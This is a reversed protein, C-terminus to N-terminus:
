DLSNGIRVSIPLQCEFDSTKEVIIDNICEIMDKAKWDKCSMTVESGDNETKSVQKRPTLIERSM